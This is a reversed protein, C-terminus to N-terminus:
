FYSLESPKQHQFYNLNSVYGELPGLTAYVMNKRANRLLNLKLRDRVELVFQAGFATIIGVPLGILFLSASITDQNLNRQGAFYLLAGAITGMTAIGAIALANPNGDRIYEERRSIENNIERSEYGM